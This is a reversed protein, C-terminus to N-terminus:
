HNVHVTRIMNNSFHLNIDTTLEYSKIKMNCKEM